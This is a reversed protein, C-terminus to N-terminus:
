TGIGGGVWLFTEMSGDHFIIIYGDQGYQTFHIEPEIHTTSDQTIKLGEFYVCFYTEGVRVDAKILWDNLLPENKIDASFLVNQQSDIVELLCYTLIEENETYEFIPPNIKVTDADPYREKYMDWIAKYVSAHLANDQNSSDVSATLLINNYDLNRPLLPTDEVIDSSYRTDQIIKHTPKVPTGLPTYIVNGNYMVENGNYSFGEVGSDVFEAWSQKEIYEFTEENLYFVFPDWDHDVGGGIGWGDHNTSYETPVITDTAIPYSVNGFHTHYLSMVDGFDMWGDNYTYYHLYINDSDNGLSTYGETNYDSYIWEWWTMGELAKFEGWANVSFTIEKRIPTKDYLFVVDNNSGIFSVNPLILNDKESNFEDINSFHRIHKM